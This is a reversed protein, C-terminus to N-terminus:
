GEKASFAHGTTAAIVSVAETSVYSAEMVFSGNPQIPISPQSAVATTTFNFWLTESASDNVILLYKRSSNAGALTQATGGTTVTGSRDTLTGQAPATTGGIQVPHAATGLVNTGDTVEVPWANALSANPTGQNVTGGGGGGSSTVAPATVDPTTTGGATLWDSVLEMFNEALHVYSGVRTAVSGWRTPM